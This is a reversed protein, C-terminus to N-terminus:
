PQSTPACSVALAGLMSELGDLELVRAVNEVSQQVIIALIESAYQKNSDFEKKAIRQLLWPLLTTDSVVTEALPPMFSFLNEFVGLINHVGRSDAEESENLRTLNAVLLDLISNNLQQLRLHRVIIFTTYSPLSSRVLEDILEAMVMRVQMAKQEDEEDLDEGDLEDGGAGVDEDTLEQIIEIVDVAIDTNEHSLLSALLSATGLKVLEPYYLAPNQTLTLFQKLAGDLDSESEIFRIDALM